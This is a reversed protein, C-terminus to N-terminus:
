IVFRTCPINNEEMLKKFDEAASENGKYLAELLAIIVEDKHTESVYTAYEYESKGTIGETSKGLDQVFLGIDGFKGIYADIFRSSEGRIEVIKKSKEWNSMKKRLCLALKVRKAWLKLPPSLRTSVKTLSIM